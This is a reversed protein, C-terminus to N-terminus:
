DGRPRVGPAPLLDYIVGALYKDQREGPLRHRLEPRADIVKRWVRKDAVGLLQMAQARRLRHGHLIIFQDRTM